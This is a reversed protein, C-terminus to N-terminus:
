PPQLQEIVKVKKPNVGIGRYSLMYGLLKKSSVGFV